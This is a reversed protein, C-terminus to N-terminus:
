GSGIIALRCTPEFCRRFADANICGEASDEHCGALNVPSQPATILWRDFRGRILKLLGVRLDRRGLFSGGARFMGYPSRWLGYLVSLARLTSRYGWRFLGRW